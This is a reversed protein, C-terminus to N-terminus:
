CSRLLAVALKGVSWLLFILLIPSIVIYFLALVVLACGYQRNAWRESTQLQAATIPRTLALDATDSPRKSVGGFATLILRLRGLLHRDIPHGRISVISKEGHVRVSIELREKGCAFGMDASAGAENNVESETVVALGSNLQLHHAIAAISPPQITFTFDQSMYTM